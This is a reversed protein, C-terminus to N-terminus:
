NITQGNASLPHVRSILRAEQWIEIVAAHGIRTAQAVADDDNNAAIDIPRGAIMDTATLLYLRYDPM